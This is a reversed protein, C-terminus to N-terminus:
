AEDLVGGLSMRVFKRNTARAISKGLSTKGVGPPGVLCLVSGKIKKVRTQVALYELVREKVDKLGYHDAELIAEARVLDHRLKSRKKWPVSIMWDIYSRLVSAEASMPSMMKLKNLEALSKEKAEKTMGVQDIKLEFNEVENVEEDGDNLEKQIAKIQENLYYERQSKEMQQKVRGRVRKEVNHFDIENAMLEMLREIRDHESNIELIEQKQSLKLAIHSAITDSLRGVDEIASLSTMVETPIKKSIKVYQEFQDMISRTLVEAEVKSLHDSELRQTQAQFHSGGDIVSLVRARYRGEVLVKVTGDPLKLLQLISAVTGVNYIDEQVPNDQSANKQAVLLIQENANMAVDLSQISKERGVFLSITMYPYVVVDRLPLLPLEVQTTDADSNM